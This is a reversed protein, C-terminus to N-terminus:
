VGGWVGVLAVLAPIPYTLIIILWCACQVMYVRSSHVGSHQEAGGAASRSSTTVKPLHTTCVAGCLEHALVHKVMRVLCSRFYHSSECALSGRELAAAAIWSANGLQRTATAQAVSLATM